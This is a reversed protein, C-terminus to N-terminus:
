KTQARCEEIFDGKRVSAHLLVIEIIKSRQSNVFRWYNLGIENFATLFGAAHAFGAGGARRGRKAICNVCRSAFSNATKRDISGQAALPNRHLHARRYSEHLFTGCRRTGGVVLRKGVEIAVIAIAILWTPWYVASRLHAGSNFTGSPWALMVCLAGAAFYAVALVAFPSADAPVARQGIQYLIQGVIALGLTAFM